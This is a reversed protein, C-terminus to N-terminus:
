LRVAAGPVPFKGDIAEWEGTRSYTHVGTLGPLWGGDVRAITAEQYRGDLGGIANFLLGRGYDGACDQSPRVMRGEHSLVDGAGRADAASSSVPGAGHYRWPGRVQDSVFIWTVPAHGDVFLPSTFMWWRDHARFVTSDVCPFDLLRCEEVWDGPFDRARYLTLAGSASAEPLMFVEGQEAFVQPYSLHFPMVLVRQEDELQGAASIRGCAIHARGLAYDMEEFFLWTAGDRVFLFPDARFTGRPSELWRFERLAPLSADAFLPRSSRRLAVKWHETDVAAGRPRLKRVVCGLMWAGLRLAGPASRPPTRADDEAAATSDASGGHLEWLKQLVLHRANWLPAVRNLRLSPYPTSSCEVRALVDADAPDGRHRRLEVATLPAGEVLEQLCNGDGAYKRSDGCALYWVGHRAATAAPPVHLRGAADAFPLAIWVDVAAAPTATPVAAVNGDIEAPRMPDDDVVYRADFGRLYARMVLGPSYAGASSAGRAVIEIFQAGGLDGLIAASLATARGPPPLLVGIKLAPGAGRAVRFVSVPDTHTM